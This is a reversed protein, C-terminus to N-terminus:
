QQLVSIVPTTSSSTPISVARAGTIAYTVGTTASTTPDIVVFRGTLDEEYTATGAQALSPPGAVSSSDTTTVVKGDIGGNVGGTYFSFSGTGSSMTSAVPTALTDVAYSGYLLPPEPSNAVQLEYQALGPNTTSTALDLAFGVGINYLYLVQNSLGGTTITTRGNAATTYSVNTTSGAAYTGARNSDQLFTGTGSGTNTFETLIANLATPYVSGGDGGSAQSEYGISTGTFATANTYTAQQQLQVDGFLLSTTAHSDNSLLLLENANVIVYTYDTPPASINTGVPALTLTGRGTTTSPATFKGSLTISATNYNQGHAASDEVGSSITSVGDALFLGVAVMPGFRPTPAFCTNCPSEGSLGFVFTGNITSAAFAAATQHRGIGSAVAGSGTANDFETIAISQAVGGVTNSAAIVYVTTASGATLVLYGRGDAGLTYSGTVPVATQVGSATNVDEVGTVTGTGNMTLSGVAAFGYAKGSSSGSQKGSILFAYNGSLLSDGPGAALTTGVTLPLAATVTAQTSDAVAFTLNYTGAVYPTGSLVGATTFTMGAPPTGSSIAWTYPPNGLTAALTTSYATGINAAPLSTTTLKLTSPPAVKISLVQTVTAPTSDAAQVTFSTTAATTPNGSIVGGTSLTLGAPLSSGSVLSWTVPPNGGSSVLTSSYATGITGTPLTTTTIALTSLVISITFSATATQQPTFSDVAKVTFTSNGVATPTGAIVGGATLSLGAPLTGSSLTWTIPTAGGTSQLTATYADKISGSALTAPTIALPAYITFTFVQTAKQQPTSSDVVQATFNFAGAVTASGSLVGATSLTLGAPLAGASVTWTLAGNGSISSLTTSYATGVVGNPVGASTIALTPVAVALTQASTVTIPTSAADTAGITFTATGPTTPTGSILGTPSLSLGLPLAGSTISWTIPATGGTSALQYSYAIAAKAAPLAPKTMALAPALNIATSASFQTNKVPTALVAATALGAVTAPATYTVSTSTQNSLSGSSLLSWAVGSNSSDGTVAATFAVSQGADLSQTASPSISSTVVGASNGGCGLVGFMASLSLLLAPSFKRM